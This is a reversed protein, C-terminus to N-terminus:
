FRTIRCDFNWFWDSSFILNKTLCEFTVTRCQFEAIEGRVRAQISLHDRFGAIRPLM